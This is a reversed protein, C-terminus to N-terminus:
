LAAVVIQTVAFATVSGVLGLMLTRTQGTTVDVLTGRGDSQILRGM